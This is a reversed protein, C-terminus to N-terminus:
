FCRIVSFEYKEKRIVPVFSRQKHECHFWFRFYLYERFFYGGAKAYFFRFYDAHVCFRLCIYEADGYFVDGYSYSRECDSGEEDDASEEM